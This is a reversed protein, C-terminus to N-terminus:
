PIVRFYTLYAVIIKKKGNKRAEWAPTKPSSTNRGEPRFVLDRFVGAHSAVNKGSAIGGSLKPRFQPSRAGGKDFSRSSRGGVGRGGGGERKRIELDPDAPM